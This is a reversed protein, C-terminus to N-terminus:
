QAVKIENEGQWAGILFGVVVLSLAIGPILGGVVFGLIADVLVLAALAIRLLRAGDGM